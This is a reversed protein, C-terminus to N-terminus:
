KKSFNVKNLGAIMIRDGSKLTTTVSTVGYYDAKSTLIENVLLSNGRYIILNGMGSPTSIRYKGASIDKGVTWYGAHLTNSNVHSVRTFEVNNLGMIEIKDGSKIDTTVVLVGFGDDESSLIENVFRDTGSAIILNGTGNTTTIRYRGEPLDKGAKWTGASLTKTYPVTITATTKKGNSTTATITATGAGVATVKGKSDVKAVKINSSKWNVTKNNTNSPSITASLTITKGKGVTASSKNLKVSKATVPPTVTVTVKVDKAGTVTATITAKGPAKGTVMGNSDVTAIKTNSSKWKVTKDASDSPSVTANLDTKKGAIVSVSTKNLKITKTSVKVSVTKFINSNDKATATITASGNAIGKVNGKTDVTAVQTNSSKWIVTKDTADGPTVTAAVKVTQNKTINLSSKSLKLSTPIVKTVTVPISKKITPAANATATITVTGVKLANVKGKSDVTAIEPNCSTWTVSKNTASSPNITATLQATRNVMLSLSSKSLSISQPVLIVEKFNLTGRLSSIYLKEGKSLKIKISHDEPYIYYSNKMQYENNLIQVYASDYDDEPQNLAVTYTGEAIDTGVEYYGASIYNLDVKSLQKVTVPANSELYVEVVDGSKLRVTFNQSNFLENGLTEYALYNTGRQIFITSTGELQSFTNLGAQIENGVTYTGEELTVQDAAQVFNGIWISLFLVMVMVKVFFHKKMSSAKERKTKKQKQSV